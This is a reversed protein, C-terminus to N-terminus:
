RVEGVEVVSEVEEVKSLHLNLSPCFSIENQESLIEKDCNDELGSKPASTNQKLCPGPYISRSAGWEVVKGLVSFSPFTLRLTQLCQYELLHWLKVDGDYSLSIILNHAANICVDVIKSKHGRLLQM